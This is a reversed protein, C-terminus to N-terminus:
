KRATWDANDAEPFSPMFKQGFGRIKSVPLDLNTSNLLGELVSCGSEQPFALKLSGAGCCVVELSILADPLGKQLGAQTIHNETM